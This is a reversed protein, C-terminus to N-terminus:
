LHITGSFLTSKCLVITNSDINCPSKMKGPTGMDLVYESMPIVSRDKLYIFFSVFISCYGHRVCVRIRCRYGLGHLM